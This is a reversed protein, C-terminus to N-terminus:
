GALHVCQRAIEWDEHAKIVLIAAQSKAAAINRDVLKNVHSEKSLDLNSDHSPTPDQNAQEDLELGLFNLGACTRQRVLSSHEGIGATFILGDLKRLSSRMACISARLREIFMAFALKAMRGEQSNDQQMKEIITKMDGSFQAIGKLGSNKNLDEDLQDVSMNENKLLYLIIGPDISGCRSAMMLGDMPTFGMTTNVSKGNEIAALSCGAGLHCIILSLALVDKKLLHAAQQTCYQYNIGHFGFRCIGYKEHWSYPVPYIKVPEPLDHHFATDFVAIQKTGAPLLKEMAEIQALCIANHLPALKICDKIDQKVDDNIVMSQSYKAGGHVVRHGVAHISSPNFELGTNQKNKKQQQAIVPGLEKRLLNEWDITLHSGSPFDIETQCLPAQPILENGSSRNVEINDFNYLYIKVSSSGSNLVLINKGEARM